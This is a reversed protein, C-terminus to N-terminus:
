KAPELSDSLGEQLGYFAPKRQYDGDFLNANEFRQSALWSDKDGIDWVTIGHQQKAPVLKRYARAINRYCDAQRRLIEPSARNLGQVGGKQGPIDYDAWNISIDMESITVKLGTKAALQLAQDIDAQPRYINTHMHVSYGHIPVGQQKWRMLQHAIAWGKVHDKHSHEQGYDAYFLLAAPDAKHAYGYCRGIFDFLEQDSAFRRRLWTDAVQGQQNFLENSLDYSRVRGRYRRLTVTLYDKVMAEFEANSGQFKVLFAPCVSELAYLLCHGHLPRKSSQAEQVALDAQTFSYNGPGLWLHFPYFETTTLSSFENDILPSTKPNRKAQCYAVGIFVKSFKRLSAQNSITKTPRSKGDPVAPGSALSCVTLLILVVILSVQLAPQKM